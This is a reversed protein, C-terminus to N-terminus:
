KIEDILDKAIELMNKGKSVVRSHNKRDLYTFSKSKKIHKEIEFCLIGVAQLKDIRDLLSEEFLNIESEGGLDQKVYLKGSQAYKKWNVRSLPDGQTYKNLEIDSFENQSQDRLKNLERKNVLPYVVFDGKLEIYKWTYFLFFPYLSFLKVRVKDRNGWGNLKLYYTLISSKDHVVVEKIKKEYEVSCNVVEDGMSEVLLKLPMLSEEECINQSPVLSLKLHKVYSNSIFSSIVFLVFM